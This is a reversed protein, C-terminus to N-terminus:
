LGLHYYADVKKPDLAVARMLDSRASAFQRLPLERHGRELYLDANEPAIALARTCTEAAERDQWVAAQAQALKLLLAASKPDEALSKQAAAVAGQEDPLSYFKTGLPSTVQLTQAQVSLALIMLCARQIMTM